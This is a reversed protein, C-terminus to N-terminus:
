ALDLRKGGRAPKSKVEVGGMFAYARVRILPAGPRPPVDAVQHERGGMFAFGTMEVEVGEPVTVQIGGMVAVATIVLEDPPLVAERLDLEVGGMLAVAATHRAPRWRGKRETGSLIAVTSRIGEGAGVPAGPVGPAGPGVPEAPLDVTLPALDALTKAAYAAAIREDREAATLRGEASAWQLREVVAHRDRDSARAAPTPEQGAAM